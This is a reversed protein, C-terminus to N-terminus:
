GVSKWGTKLSMLIMVWWYYGTNIGTHTKFLGIATFDTFISQKIWKLELSPMKVQKVWRLLWTQPAKLYLLIANQLFKWCYEKSWDHRKFSIKTICALGGCFRFKEGEKTRDWEIHFEESFSMTLCPSVSHWNFKKKEERRWLTSSVFPAFYNMLNDQRSFIASISSNGASFRLSLDKYEKEYM